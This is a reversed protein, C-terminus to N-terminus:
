SEGAWADWSDGYYDAVYEFVTQRAEETSLEIGHVPQGHLVMHHSRCVAVLNNPYNTGGQSRHVVHHLDTAARRCLVCTYSDREFIHWQQYNRRM